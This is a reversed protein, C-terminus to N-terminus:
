APLAPPARSRFALRTAALAPADLHAGPTHSVPEAVVTPWSGSAISALETFLAHLPCAGSEGEQPHCADSLAPTGAHSGTAAHTGLRELAHGLEHTAVGAQGALVCLALAMALFARRLFGRKTTCDPQM